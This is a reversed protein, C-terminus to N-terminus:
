HRPSATRRGAPTPTTAATTKHTIPTTVPERFNSRYQIWDLHVRLGPLLRADVRGREVLDLLTALVQGARGAQGPQLHNVHLIM